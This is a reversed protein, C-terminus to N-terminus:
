SLIYELKCIGALLLAGFLYLFREAHLEEGFFLQLFFVCFQAATLLIQVLICM